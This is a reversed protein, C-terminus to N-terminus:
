DEVRVYGTATYRFKGRRPCECELSLDTYEEYMYCEFLTFELMGPNIELISSCFLGSTKYIEDAKGSDDYTPSYFVYEFEYEM